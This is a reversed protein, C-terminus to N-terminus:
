QTRHACGYREYAPCQGRSGPCQGQGGVNSSKSVLRDVWSVTPQNDSFLAAHAGSKFDYVDEMVLWLMLLGAMELDSNTIGGTPNHESVLNAKRDEPWEFRSVTPACKELEGFMVSGVGYGSADKVGVFDLWGAVLEICKTPALTSERLLTRCNSIAELLLKHKHLHIVKPDGRIVMNCPTLLGKGCPISIFVHRIKSIVSQFENFPIASYGKKM